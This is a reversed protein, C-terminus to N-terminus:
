VGIGPVPLPAGSFGKRFPIDGSNTPRVKLYLSGTGPIKAHM